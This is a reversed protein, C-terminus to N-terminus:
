GDQASKSGRHGAVQGLDNLKPMCAECYPDTPQVAKKLFPLQKDGSEM